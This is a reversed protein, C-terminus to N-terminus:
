SNRERTGAYFVHKETENEKEVNQTEEEYEINEALAAIDGYEQELIISLAKAHELLGGLTEDGYFSELEYVAKTHNRFSSILEILDSSNNAIVTLRSSQERLLWYFVVNLVGSVIFALTLWLNIEM